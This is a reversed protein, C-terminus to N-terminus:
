VPPVVMLAPAVSCILRSPVLGPDVDLRPKTGAEAPVLMVILPPVKCAPPWLAVTYMLLLRRILMVALPPVMALVLLAYERVSAPAMVDAPGRVSVLLLSRLRCPLTVILM